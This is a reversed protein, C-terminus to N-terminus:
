KISVGMGLRRGYGFALLAQLKQASCMRQGGDAPVLKAVPREHRTIVIEEGRLVQDLLEALHTKAHSVGVTRM